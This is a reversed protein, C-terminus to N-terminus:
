FEEWGEAAYVPALTIKSASERHIWRKNNLFLITGDDSLRIVKATKETGYNLYKVTDGIAIAQTM